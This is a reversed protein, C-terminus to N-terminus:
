PQNEKLQLHRFKWGNRADDYSYGTLPFSLPKLGSNSVDMLVVRIQNQYRAYIAIAEMGNKATITQYNYNQSTSWM